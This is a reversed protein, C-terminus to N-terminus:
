ITFDWRWANEAWCNCRAIPADRRRKDLGHTSYSLSGNTFGNTYKRCQEIGFLIFRETFPVFGWLFKFGYFAVQDPNSRTYEYLATISVNM